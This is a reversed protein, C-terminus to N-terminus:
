KRTEGPALQLILPAREGVAHLRRPLRDSARLYMKPLRGTNTLTLTVPVVEGVGCLSTLRREM